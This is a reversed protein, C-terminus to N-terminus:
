HSVCLKKSHIELVCIRQNDCQSIPRQTYSHTHTHTRTHTVLSKEFIDCIVIVILVFFMGNFMM